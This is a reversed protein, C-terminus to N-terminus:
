KCLLRDRDIPIEGSFVTKLFISFEDLFQRFGNLYFKRMVNTTLIESCICYKRFPREAFLQYKLQCYLYM